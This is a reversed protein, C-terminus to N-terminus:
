SSDSRHQVGSLIVGEAMAAIKVWTRMCLWDCWLARGYRIRALPLPQDRSPDFFWVSVFFQITPRTESSLLEDAVTAAILFLAASEIAM